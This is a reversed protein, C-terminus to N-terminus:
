PETRARTSPSTTSTLAVLSQSAVFLVLDFDMMSRRMGGRRSRAGPQGVRQLGGQLQGIAHGLDLQHRGVAAFRFGEREALVEGTRLASRAVVM